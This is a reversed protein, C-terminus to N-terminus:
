RANRPGRRKIYEDMYKRGHDAKPKKAPRLADWAKDVDAPNQRAEMGQEVTDRCHKFFAARNFIGGNPKAELQEHKIKYVQIIENVTEIGLVNVISAWKGYPNGQPDSFWCRVHQQLAQRNHHITWPSGCSRDRCYDKRKIPPPSYVSLTETDELYRSGGGGILSPPESPKSGSPPNNGPAAKANHRSAGVKQTAM